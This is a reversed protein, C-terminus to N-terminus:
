GESRPRAISWDLILSPPRGSGRWYQVRPPMKTGAQAASAADQWAELSALPDRLVSAM